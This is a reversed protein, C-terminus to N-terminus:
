RRKKRKVYLYILTGLVTWMLLVAWILYNPASKPAPINDVSKGPITVPQTFTETLERQINEEPIKYCEKNECQYLVPCDKYTECSGCSSESQCKGAQCTGIKGSCLNAGICDQSNDCTQLTLDIITSDRITGQDMEYESGVKSFQYEIIESIITSDEKPITITVISDYLGKDIKTVRGTSIVKGEKNEIRWRGYQTRYYSSTTFQSPDVAKLLIRFTQKEGAVFFTKGDLNVISYPSINTFSSIMVLILIVIIAIILGKIWVKQRGFSKRIKNINVM